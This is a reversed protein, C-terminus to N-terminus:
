INILIIGFVGLIIGVIKIFTFDEHFFLVSSVLVILAYLIIQMIGVYSLQLGLCFIYAFIFIQFIYLFIAAVFWPNKFIGSFSTATSAKKICVDAIAVASCALILLIFIYITKNNLM